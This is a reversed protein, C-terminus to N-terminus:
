TPWGSEWFPNPLGLKSAWETNDALTGSSKPARNAAFMVDGIFTPTFTGPVIQTPNFQVNRAKYPPGALTTFLVLSWDRDPM